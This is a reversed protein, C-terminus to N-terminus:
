DSVTDSISELAAEESNYVQFIRDLKTLRFVVMNESSVCCLCIKGRKERVEKAFSLLSAIVLSSLFGVREFNVIYKDGDKSVLDHLDKKLEVREELNIENFIFRVVTVDGIKSIETFDNM